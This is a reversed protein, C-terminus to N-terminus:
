PQVQPYVWASLRVPRVAAGEPQRWDVEVTLRKNRTDGPTEDVTVKLKGGPLSAVGRSALEPAGSTLRAPPVLSLRELATNAEEIATQREANARQRVGILRLTQVGTTLMTALLVGAVCVELLSVGRRTSPNRTM